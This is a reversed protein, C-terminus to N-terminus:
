TRVCRGLSVAVGLAWKQASADVDAHANKTKHTWRKRAVFCFCGVPVLTSRCAAELDFPTGQRFPVLTAELDLPTGQSSPVLTFELNLLDWGPLYLHLILTWHLEKGPLYLHLRVQFTIHLAVTRFDVWSEDCFGCTRFFRKKLWMSWWRFESECVCITLGCAGREQVRCVSRWNLAATILQM